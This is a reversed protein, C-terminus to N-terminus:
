RTIRMVSLGSSIEPLINAATGITLRLDQLLDAANLLTGIKLDSDPRPSSSTRARYVRVHIEGEKIAKACIARIYSRNFENQAILTAANTPVKVRKSGRFEFQEFYFGAELELLLSLEDGNQIARKFMQPYLSQGTSNFRNSIFFIGQQQDLSMEELM